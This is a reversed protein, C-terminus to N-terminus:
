VICKEVKALMYSINKIRKIAHAFLFELIRARSTSGFLKVLAEEKHPKIKM